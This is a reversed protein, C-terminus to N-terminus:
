VASCELCKWTQRGGEDWAFTALRGCACWRDTVGERVAEANRRDAERADTLRFRYSRGPTAKERAMHIIEAVTEFPDDGAPVTAVAEDRRESEPNARWDGGGQRLPPRATQRDPRSLEALLAPKHQRFIPLWKARAGAPGCAKLINDNELKVSVGESAAKELLSSISM